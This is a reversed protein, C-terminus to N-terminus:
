SLPQSKMRQAKLKLQNGTGGFMMNEMGSFGETGSSFSRSLPNSDEPHMPVQLSTNTKDSSMFDESMSMCLDQTTMEKM